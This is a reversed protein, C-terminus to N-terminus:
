RGDPGSRPRVGIEAWQPSSKQWPWRRLEDRGGVAPAHAAPCSACEPLLLNAAMAVLTGFVFSSNTIAQVWLPLGAALHPYKEAGLGAIIGLGIVATRRPDMNCSAITQLGNVMILGGTFLTIGGMVPRPMLALAIAIFPLFAMVAFIAAIAYAVRRSAVGTAAPIAVANPMTNVGITGVLGSFITALGDALVGRRLSNTDPERWAADNLRQCQSLVGITKATSALAIIAFPVILEPNFAFRLHDLRPVAFLPMPGFKEVDAWTVLGSVAAAAYGFAMAILLALMRLAGRGWITLVVTTGLTLAAVTLYAPGAPTAAGIAFTLRFALSGVIVGVLFVVLGQIETPFLRKLHSVFPSLATECCGAFVTMGFVLPLGGLKIALISPGLYNASLVGPALYGSGVPGRPLAQLLVGLSLALMSLGVVAAVTPAPVAGARLVALLFVLLANMLGVWQLGICLALALPPKDEVGYIMGAPLPAACDGRPAFGIRALLDHPRPRAANAGFEEPSTAVAIDSSPDATM